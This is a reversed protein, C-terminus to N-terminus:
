AGTHLQRFILAPLLHVDRGIMVSSVLQSVFVGFGVPFGVAASARMEDVDVHVFSDDDPPFVM